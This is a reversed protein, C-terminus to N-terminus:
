GPDDSPRDRNILSCTFKVHAEGNNFGSSDM